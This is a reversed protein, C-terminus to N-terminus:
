IIVFSTYKNPEWFSNFAFFLIFSINNIEMAIIIIVTTTTKITTNVFFSLFSFLESIGSIVKGYLKLVNKKKSGIDSLGHM